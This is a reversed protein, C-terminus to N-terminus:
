GPHPSQSQIIEMQPRKFRMKEHLSFWYVKSSAGIVHRARRDYGSLLTGCVPCLPAERSRIYYTKTDAERGITYRTVIVM